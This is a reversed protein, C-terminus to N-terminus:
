QARRSHYKNKNKIEYAKSLLIGLRQNIYLMIRTQAHANKKQKWTTKASYKETQKSVLKENCSILRVGNQHIPHLPIYPMM